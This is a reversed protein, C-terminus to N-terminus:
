LHINTFRCYCCRSVTERFYVSIPILLAYRKYLTLHYISGPITHASSNGKLGVIFGQSM